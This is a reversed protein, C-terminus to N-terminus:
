PHCVAFRDVTDGSLVSDCPRQTDSLAVLHSPLVWEVVYASIKYSFCYKLISNKVEHGNFHGHLLLRVTGLTRQSTLLPFGSVPGAPVYCPAAARSFQRANGRFTMRNGYSGGNGSGPLYMLSVLGRTWM